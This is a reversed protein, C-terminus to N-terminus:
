GVNDLLRVRFKVGLAAALSRCKEIDVSPVDVVTVTVDPVYKVAEKIFNLLQGYANKVAPKCLEVYTQEDQANLSISLKDVIGALIPLVNRGHVANALGNTNIRVVGGREKVYRATEEVTKLRLLPEGYGCFVVESYITPDGISAKIEATAPERDLRLNHGKVFDTQYRVCFGCNNTCRNTVNLYLSDRIKYAIRGEEVIQGMGFLKRSNLTTIRDLDSLTIGRLQALLSATRIIFAPENRKGRYPVPALYPADTEVVILDDPVIAAIKRLEDAKKFTVVGAFSIYLGRSLVADAMAPSGSFCHLVGNRVDEDRIIRLTDESAERSHIVLPLGTEKSLAIHRLFAEAQVHRPSHEYHYDLGTEGIASAGPLMDRLRQIAWDDLTSANHPHVGCTYYLGDYQGALAMAKESSEVDSAITLMDTVGCSHARTIVEDRDGDFQTMELHCHTDIM